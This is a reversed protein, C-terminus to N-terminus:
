TVAPCPVGEMDLGCLPATTMAEHEWVEVVDAVIDRGGQANLEVAGGVEIMKELLCVAEYRVATGAGGSRAKLHRFLAEGATDAIERRDEEGRKKWSGGRNDQADSHPVRAFLSKCQEPTRLNERM